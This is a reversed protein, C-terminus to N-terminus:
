LALPFIYTPPTPRPDKRLLGDSLMLHLSLGAMIFHDKIKEVHLVQCLFVAIYTSNRVPGHQSSSVQVGSLNTHDTHDPPLRM